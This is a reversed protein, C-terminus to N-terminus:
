RLRLNPFEHGGLAIREVLRQRLEVRLDRGGHVGLEGALAVGQLHDGGLVEGRLRDQLCLSRDQGVLVGLAVRAAAVVAPTLVDVDDLLQGDVPGLRQEAGLVGVHLRVRPRLGVGGHVERQQLRAVGDQAQVQGVAPVQRVAHPDVVRALDEVGHGVVHALGVAQDVVVLDLRQGLLVLRLQDDRAPRGVRALQVEGAEPLDGVLRAGQEHHVHRVEGAQDRRAQVGVRHGVGVHHGGGRVLRQATRAAPEDQGLRLQALLDVGRHERAHLATRQLVHDGGLRHRQLDRRGLLEGLPLPAGQRARLDEGLAEGPGVGGLGADAHQAPAGVHM